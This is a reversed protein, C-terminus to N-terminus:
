GMSPTDKVTSFQGVKMNVEQTAILKELGEKLVTFEDIKMQKSDVAAM